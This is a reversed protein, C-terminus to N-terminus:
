DALVRNWCVQNGPNINIGKAALRVDLARADAIRTPVEDWVRRPALDGNEVEVGVCCGVNDRFVYEGPCLRASWNSHHTIRRSHAFM